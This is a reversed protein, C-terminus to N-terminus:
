HMEHIGDWVSRTEQESGLTEEGLRAALLQARADGAKSSEQLDSFTETLVARYKREGELLRDLELKLLEFNASM